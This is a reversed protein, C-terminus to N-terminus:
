EVGKRHSDGSLRKFVLSREARRANTHDQERELLSGMLGVYCDWTAIGRLLGEYVMIDIGRLLGEVM